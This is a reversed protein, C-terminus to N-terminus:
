IMFTLKGGNTKFNNRGNNKILLRSVSVTSQVGINVYYTKKTFGDSSKVYFYVNNQGNQLNLISFPSSINSFSVNNVSMDVKALTDVLSYSGSIDKIGFSLGLYGINNGNTDIVWNINTNNLTLTAFDTSTQMYVKALYAQKTNDSSTVLFNLSNDKPQLTVSFSPDIAPYYTTNVSVDV